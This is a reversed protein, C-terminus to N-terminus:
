VGDERRWGCEPCGGTLDGRLDYGCKICRGRKRRILRRTASPGLSLLWLIAAYFITNIAFGSWIPKIPLDFRSKGRTFQILSDPLHIVGEAKQSTASRTSYYRGGFTRAPWGIRVEVLSDPNWLDQRWGELMWASVRRHSVRPRLSYRPDGYELEGAASSEVFWTEEIGTGALRIRAYWLESTATWRIERLLEGPVDDLSVVTSGQRHLDSWFRMGWAVAVNVIAGLLLLVVLKTIWRKM